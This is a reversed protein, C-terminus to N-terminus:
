HSKKRAIIKMVKEKEDPLASANEVEKELVDLTQLSLAEVGLLRMM